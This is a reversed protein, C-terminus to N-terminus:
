VLRGKLYDLAEVYGQIGHGSIVKSAYESIYSHQRYVERSDLRSVHVEVTPIGTAKLADLVSISTHTLGGANIVIGEAKKYYAEQIKDIIDGEHNSQFIEIEVNIKAAHEHIINVLDEYSDTGYIEPERIGLMNINPGNIISIM